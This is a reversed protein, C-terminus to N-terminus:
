NLPGPARPAALATALAKLESALQHFEAQSVVDNQRLWNLRQFQKGPDENVNVRGFMQRLRNRWRRRIEALIADHSEDNLVRVPLGGSAPAQPTLQLLTSELVGPKLRPLVLAAAVMAIALGRLAPEIPYSEGIGAIMFVGALAVSILALDPSHMKITLKAPNAVDISEYPVYFERQGTRDSFSYKLRLDEFEFAAGIGLRSQRYTVIDAM